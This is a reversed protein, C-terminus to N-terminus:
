ALEAASRLYLELQSGIQEGTLAGVVGFGDVIQQARVTLQQMEDSSRAQAIRDRDGLLLFFGDLDGGHPELFVAQWSEITGDAQWRTWLEVAENFVTTSKQERGRVPSGWGIFIGYDAM